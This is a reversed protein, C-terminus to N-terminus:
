TYHKCLHINLLVIKSTSVGWSTNKTCFLQPLSFVFRFVVLRTVLSFNRFLLRITHDCSKLTVHSKMKATCIMSGEVLPGFNPDRLNSDSM